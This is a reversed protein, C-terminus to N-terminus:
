RKNWSTQGLYHVMGTEGRALHLIRYETKTIGGFTRGLKQLVPNFTTWREGVVLSMERRIQKNIRMLSLIARRSIAYDAMHDRLIEFPYVVCPLDTAYTFIMMRIKPPLSM